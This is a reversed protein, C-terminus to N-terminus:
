APLSSSRVTLPALVTSSPIGTDGGGAGSGAASLWQPPVRTRPRAQARVALMSPQSNAGQVTM